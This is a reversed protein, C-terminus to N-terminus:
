GTVTYALCEYAQLHGIYLKKRSYAKEPTIGGPGIPTQNRFYSAITVADGWFILSLQVDLLMARVM